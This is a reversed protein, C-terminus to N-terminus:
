HLFLASFLDLDCSLIAKAREKCREANAIKQPNNEERGENELLLAYITVAGSVVGIIKALEIPDSCLVKNSKSRM